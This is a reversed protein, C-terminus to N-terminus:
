TKLKERKEIYMSLIQIWYISLRNYEKGGYIPTMKVACTFKLASINSTTSKLINEIKTM